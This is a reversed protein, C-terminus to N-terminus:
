ALLKTPAYFYRAAVLFAGGAIIVTSSFVIAQTYGSFREILAGTIPTGALGAFSIVFVAMGVYTGIKSPHDATHAITSMMMAIVVGSMWGYLLAFVILGATSFIKLWCFMLVGAFVGAGSLLNFQGLRQALFAAALRGLLSGGNLLAFLYSSVNTSMGYAIGYEALYFYPTWLGLIVLFLGIAQLSYTPNRFAEPLLLSGKRRGGSQAPRITVAAVSVLALTLFACVRQAWPFGITSNPPLLNSMIVPYIIGGIPSGTSALGMAFARRRHFYHGVISLAPTFMFGSSLGVLIGQCLVFQYLETCLSTLMMALVLLVSFPLVMVMAGFRDTLPGSLITMAFQLFAQLSGIWAIDDASYDALFNEQYFTEYVGFSNIYGFSVVSICWCGLVVLWARTGGESFVHEAQQSNQAPVTELVEGRNIDAQSELKTEEVVPRGIITSTESSSM